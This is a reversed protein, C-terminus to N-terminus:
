SSVVCSFRTNNVSLTASAAEWYCTVSPQGLAVAAAAGRCCDRLWRGQQLLGGNPTAAALHSLLQQQAAAAVLVLALPHACQRQATTHLLHDWGTGARGQHSNVVADRSQPPPPPPRQQLFPTQCPQTAAIPWPPLRPHMYISHAVTMNNCPDHPQMASCAATTSGSPQQLMFATATTCIASYMYLANSCIHMHMPVDVVGTAALLVVMAPCRHLCVYSTTRSNTAHCIHM